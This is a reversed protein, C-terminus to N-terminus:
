NIQLFLRVMRLLLKELYVALTINIMVRHDLVLLLIVLLLVTM